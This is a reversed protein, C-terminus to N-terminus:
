FPYGIAFNLIMNERRWDRDGFLFSDLWREDEPLWPKRVPLALDFRLVFMQIDVRLGFGAGVGLEELWKNSFKGGPLAENENYLWVNGADVFFAGKLYKNFPFRFEMNGELRIDGAQDFFGGSSINDPIFTGPGLSRIRFARV